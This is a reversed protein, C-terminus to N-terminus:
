GLMLQRAASSLMWRSVRCTGFSMRCCRPPFSLLSASQSLGPVAPLLRGTQLTRLKMTDRGHRGALEPHCGRPGFPRVPLRGGLHRRAHQIAELFSLPFGHSTSGVRRLLQLSLAM